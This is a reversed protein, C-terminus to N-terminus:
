QQFRWNGSTDSAWIQISGAPMLVVARYGAEPALSSGLYFLNVNTPPNVAGRADFTVTSSSPSPAYISNTGIQSSIPPPSGPPPEVLTGSSDLLITKETPDLAGNNNSDVWVSTTNTSAQVVCNVTTNLRIAEFRALRLISAMEQAASNLEYFRYARLFAPLGVALLVVAVALALVLEILSFGAARDRASLRM